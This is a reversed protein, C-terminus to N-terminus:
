TEKDKRFHKHLGSLLGPIQQSQVDAENQAKTTEIQQQLSDERLEPYAASGWVDCFNCTKMGRLGERNPCTEATSVPVKYVKEGFTEKYFQSVPYYPIGNWLKM